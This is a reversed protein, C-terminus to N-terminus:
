PVGVGVGGWGVACWGMGRCVVGDWGGRGVKAGKAAARGCICTFLNGWPEGLGAKCTQAQDRQM